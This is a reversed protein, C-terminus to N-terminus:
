PSSRRRQSPHARAFTAWHHDDNDDLPARRILRYRVSIADVSTLGCWMRAREIWAWSEVGIVFGSILIYHYPSISFNEAGKIIVSTGVYFDLAVLYAGGVAFRNDQWQGQIYSKIIYLKDQRAFDRYTEFVKGSDEIM